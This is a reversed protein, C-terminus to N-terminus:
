ETGSDPTPPCQWASDATEHVWAGGCCRVYYPQGTNGYDFCELDQDQSTCPPLSQYPQVVCEGSDADAAESGTDTVPGADLQAADSGDTATGVDVTHSDEPPPSDAAGPGADAGTGDGPPSSTACGFSAAATWSFLLTLALPKM